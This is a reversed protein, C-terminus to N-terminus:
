IRDFEGFCKSCRSVSLYSSLGALEPFAVELHKAAGVIDGKQYLQIVEDVHIYAFRIKLEEILESKSMNEYDLNM